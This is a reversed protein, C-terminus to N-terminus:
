FLSLLSIKPSPSSGCYVPCYTFSEATECAYLSSILQRDDPSTHGICCLVGVAFTSVRGGIFYRFLPCLSVIYKSYDNASASKTLLHYVM